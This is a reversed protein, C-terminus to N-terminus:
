CTTCCNTPNGQTDGYKAHRDNRRRPFLVERCGAARASVDEAGHRTPAKRKSRRITVRFYIRVMRTASM